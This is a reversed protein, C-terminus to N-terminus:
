FVNVGYVVPWRDSSCGNLGFGLDQGALHAALVTAYLSRGDPQGAASFDIWVYGESSHACGENDAQIPTPLQILAGPTAGHGAAYITMAKVSVHNFGSWSFAQAPILAAALLCPVVLHVKEPIATM